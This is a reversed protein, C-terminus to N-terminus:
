KTELSGLSFSMTSLLDAELDDRSDVAGDSTEYSQELGTAAEDTEWAEIVGRMSAVGSAPPAFPSEVLEPTV